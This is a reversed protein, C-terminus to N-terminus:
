FFCNRPKPSPAAGAGPSLVLDCHIMQHHDRSVAPQGRRRKSCERARLIRDKSRRSRFHWTRDKSGPIAPTGLKFSDAASILGKVRSVTNHDGNDVELDVILRRSLSLQQQQQQQLQQKAHQEQHIQKRLSAVEARLADVEVILAEPTRDDATAGGTPQPAAQQIEDGTTLKCSGQVGEVVAGSVNPEEAFDICKEEAQHKTPSRRISSSLSTRLMNMLM